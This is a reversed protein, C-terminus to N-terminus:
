KKQRPDDDPNVYMVMWPGTGHVQIICAQKAFGYHATGKIMVAFGGTPIQMMTQEDFKEGIGMYFSGEIVTIHEDATHRHPM